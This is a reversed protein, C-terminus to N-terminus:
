LLTPVHADHGRNPIADNPTACGRGHPEQPVGLDACTRPVQGAPLVVRDDEHHDGSGCTEHVLRVLPLENILDPM